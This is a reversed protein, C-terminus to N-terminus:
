FRKTLGLGSAGDPNIYPIVDFGFIRPVHNRMVAHGIAWGIIAGSIVDSFDHNRADIRQYGVFGAFAYLPIGVWPGYAEHMVTAFCVSSSTHGSPWGWPDGNPSETHLSAKLGVNLMGNISLASLMAKSTEYAKVDGTHQSAFYMLGALAFHMGPSGGIDGVDDWFKPLDSGTRRYHDQVRDDMAKHTAYGAGGSVALAILTTPDTFAFRTDDWVLAPFEKADRGFSRLLDGKYAPGRRKSWHVPKGDDDAPGTAPAKGLETLLPVPREGPAAAALQVGAPRPSRAAVPPDARRATRYIRTYQDIDGGGGGVLCGSLLVAPTLLAVTVTRTCAGM